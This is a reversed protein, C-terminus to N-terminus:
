HAGIRRAVVLVTKALVKVDLRLSFNRVYHMDYRIWDHFAAESRGNVQWLGTIGPKVSLRADRWSPSFRMEGMALPRPGVLSMESRLVNILQPLEDLSSSRLFGGVRTVRPDRAMKFMPGDVSKQAWLEAQRAEADMRMTRFKIMDFERGGLGSRRQRFFVPGCSDLKIALAILLLLPSVALLILASVVVDFSRKCSERYNCTVTAPLVRRRRPWPHANDAITLKSAPQDCTVVCDRTRGHEETRYGDGLVSYEIKSARAVVVSQGLISERVLSGESVRVGDGIVAPGIVYADDAIVCNRGLVVPGIVHASPSVQADKDCWVRDGLPIFRSEDFLSQHLVIQHVKLYESLGNIESHFGRIPRLNVALGKGALAPLLQEKIDVYGRAAIHEFIEPRFAYIGAFRHQKRRDRSPHLIEFGRILGEENSLVNELPKPEPVERGLVGLTAIGGVALHSRLFGKLDISNLYLNGNVVCFSEKGVFEECQKICGAPGRPVTDVVYHIRLDSSSEESALIAKVSDVEQAAIAIAVESIGNRCLVDLQYTILPRNLFPLCPMSHQIPFCHRSHWGALLIAKM